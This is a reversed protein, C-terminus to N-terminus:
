AAASGKPPRYRCGPYGSCSVFPGYRGQRRVLAKGCEPCAEGTPEAAPAASRAGAGPQIYKCDPYGTCGIFAGRRGMRKHLPKGCQPCSGLNEAEASSEGGDETQGAKDKIFTCDPYGSCGVFPGRRGTRQVLPKGCRPCDEGTLQAEANRRDKIYTCDPFRSCGVFEGYKGERVV